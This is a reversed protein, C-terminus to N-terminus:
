GCTAHVLVWLSRVERACRSLDHNSLYIQVGHLLRTTDQSLREFEAKLDTEMWAYPVSGIPDQSDVLYRCIKDLQELPQQIKMNIDSKV